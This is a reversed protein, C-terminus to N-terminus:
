VSGKNGGKGTIFAGMMYESRMGVGMSNLFTPVLHLLSRLAVLAELWAHLFASM